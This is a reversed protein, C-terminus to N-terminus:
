VLSSILVRESRTWYASAFPIPQSVSVHRTGESGEPINGQQRERLTQPGSITLMKGSMSSRLTPGCHQELRTSAEEVSLHSKADFGEGM